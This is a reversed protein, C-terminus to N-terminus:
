TKWLEGGHRQSGDKADGLVNGVVAELTKGVNKCKKM